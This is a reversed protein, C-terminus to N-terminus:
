YLTRKLLHRPDVPIDNIRLEWHLHPGTSFGTTGIEGMPTNQKLVAGKKVYIKHLHFYMTYVGPFHELVITNGTVIREKAFVVKGNCPAKIVTGTPAPYDVGWHRRETVKGNTYKSIRKEGFPSSIRTPKFPLVFPGPCLEAQRNKTKLLKNFHDEQKTKEKSKKYIINTNKQDLHMVYQPFDTDYITFPKIDEVVEDEFIIKTKIQWLSPKWWTAIGAVVVFETQKKNVPFAELTQIIKNDQNIFSAWAKKIQKKATFKISIFDGLASSKPIVIKYDTKVFNKERVTIDAQTEGDKSGKSCATFALGFFVFLFIIKRKM